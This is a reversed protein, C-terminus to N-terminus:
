EIFLFSAKKFLFPTSKSNLKEILFVFLCVFFGLVAVVVFGVLNCRIGSLIAPIKVLPFSM